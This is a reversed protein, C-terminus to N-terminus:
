HPSRFPAWMGVVEHDYYAGDIAQAVLDAHQASHQTVASMQNEKHRVYADAEQRQKNALASKEAERKEELQTRAVAKVMQAQAQASRMAEFSKRNAVDRIASKARDRGVIRGLDAAQQAKFEQMAAEKASEREEHAQQVAESRENMKQMIAEEVRAKDGKVANFTADKAEKMRDLLGRHYDDMQPYQHMNNVRAMHSAAAHRLEESAHEMSSHYAEHVPDMHPSDLGTGEVAPEEPMPQVSAEVEVKDIQEDSPSDAAPEPMPPEVAETEAQAVPADEVMPPGEVMPAADASPAGEPGEPPSPMPPGELMPAAEAAPANESMPPGEASPPGQSMPLDESMPPGEALSPGESRHFPNPRATHDGQRKGSKVVDKVQLLSTVDEAFSGEISAEALTQPLSLVLLIGIGGFHPLWTVM